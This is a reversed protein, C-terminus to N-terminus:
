APGRVAGSPTGAGSAPSPVVVRYIGALSGAQLVDPLSVARGTRREVISLLTVLHLSDWGPLDGLPRDADAATVSLGIEDSVLTIFEDITNV